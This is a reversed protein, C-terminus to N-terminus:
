STFLSFILPYLFSLISPSDLFLLPQTQRDPKSLSASSKELDKKIRNTITRSETSFQCTFTEYDKHCKVKVECKVKVMKGTLQLLVTIGTAHHSTTFQEGDVHPVEAPLKSKECRTSSILHKWHTLCIKPPALAM